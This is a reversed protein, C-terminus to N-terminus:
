RPRTALGHGENAATWAEVFVRELNALFDDVSATSHNPRSLYFPKPVRFCVELNQILRVCEGRLLPLQSVTSRLQQLPLTTFSSLGSVLEALQQCRARLASLIAKVQSQNVGPVHLAQEELSALDRMLNQETKELFLPFVGRQLVGFQIGNLLFADLSLAAGYIAGQVEPFDVPLQQTTM